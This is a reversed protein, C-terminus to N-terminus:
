HILNRRVGTWKRRGQKHRHGRNRRLRELARRLVKRDRDMERICLVSARWRRAQREQDVTVVLVM